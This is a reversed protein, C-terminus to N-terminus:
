EPLPRRHIRVSLFLTVALLFFGFVLTDQLSIRLGALVYGSTLFLGTLLHTLVTSANAPILELSEEYSIMARRAALISLPLTALAILTSEPMENMIVGFLTTLYVLAMIVAYGRAANKRGLRVVLTRKGTAEDARYDQFENIYLVATILLAVPISPVITVCSIVQAQVYYAGLTMLIGFNLGIFVEGIGRSVLRVPPATYFFGSAVGIIGLILIFTGRTFALGLGIFGGLMFFFISEAFVEFSSLLGRQIMRSGGTFPRVYDVNIDDNGSLHDFFDNAINAGLHLCCGAVLTLVFVDWIFVGATDWAIATGLLIPTVSATLFSFRM